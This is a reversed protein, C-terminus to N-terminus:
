RVAQVSIFGICVLHEQLRSLRRNAQGHHLASGGHITDRVLKPCIGLLLASGEEKLARSNLGSPAYFSLRAM